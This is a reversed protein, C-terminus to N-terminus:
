AVWGWILFIFLYCGLLLASAIAAGVRVARPWHTAEMGLVIFAPFLALMYRSISTTYGDANLKTVSSAWMIVLFLALPLNLRRFALFACGLFLLASLPDLLKFSLLSGIGPDAFMGQIDRLIGEWPWGFALHWVGQAASLPAWPFVIGTSLRIFLIYLLLAAPALSFALWTQWRRLQQRRTLILELGLPLLLIIGQLRTLTALAALTGATLWFGRRAALYAGTALALFLSETYGAMLFFSTPFVALAIVAIKASAASGTLELTLQYLLYFAVFCALSSIILAAALNNGLLITGLIRTLLPYLPLFASSGYCAYGHRAIELYWATDWRLWMGVLANNPGSSSFLYTPCAPVRGNFVQQVASAVFNGPLVAALTGGVLSCYIRLALWVGFSTKAADSGAERRLTSWLKSLRNAPPSPSEAAPMSPSMAPLATSAPLSPESATRRKDKM